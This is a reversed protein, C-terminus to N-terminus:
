PRPHHAPCFGPRPGISPFQRCVQPRTAYIKCLNRHDLFRCGGDQRQQLTFLQTSSRFSKVIGQSELKKALKKLSGSGDDESAIGMLILDEISVEVPLHCCGAWCGKCLSPRFPTWRSLLELTKTQAPTIEQHKKSPPRTTLKTDNM